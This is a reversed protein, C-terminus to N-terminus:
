VLLMDYVSRSGHLTLVHMSERNPDVNVQNAKVYKHVDRQCNRVVVHLADNAATFNFAKYANLYNAFVINM